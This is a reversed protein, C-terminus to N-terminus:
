TRAIFLRAAADPAGKLREVEAFGAMAAPWDRARYRALAAEYAASWAPAGDPLDVALGLLEYIAIGEMRGYVAVRDVERVVIASGAEARTAEGILIDTGYLKNVAELRSAVNVADGIATYNLREESGINGVLIRGSNVGTRMALSPRGVAAFEANLGVLMRQCALATRCANLAHAPDALPAGWFAMVADGIFKDVTGGSAAVERSMRGLYEALIQVIGEGLRESLGAFGALDTFMVTPPQHHGGPKVEIGQSVLTRVLETPLFKQFSALGRGMQVLAASLQDLERVSSPLRRIRELRFSEVHALQSAIRRLPLALLVNALLVAILALALTFALAAYFLLETKREIDSLFDAEPIVTVIAWDNFGISAANVFYGRGQEDFPMPLGVNQTPKGLDRGSAVIAMHGLRLMPEGADALRVMRDREAGSPKQTAIAGGKGDVIFVAGSEGVQQNALYLSLRNLEIAVAIVGILERHVHLPTANAIAPRMSAPMEVIESWIPQDATGAERYWPQRLVDYRAPVIEREKFIIDEPEAEYRDTRRLWGEAGRYSEVMNIGIDGIKQAGFFHGDPWGLGIWSLSPQSRLLSLFVFERKAEDSAAIVGQFFITRLVERAATANAIVTVIEYRISNAAEQSLRAPLAEVNQHAIRSWAFHILGATALVTLLM